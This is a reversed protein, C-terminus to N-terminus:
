CRSPCRECVAGAPVRSLFFLDFCAGEFVMALRGLDPKGISGSGCWLWIFKQNLDVSRPQIRDVVHNRLASEFRDQVKLQGGCQSTIRRTYHDLDAAAASLFNM